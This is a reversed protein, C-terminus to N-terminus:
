HVFLVHHCLHLSQQRCSHGELGNSVGVEGGVGDEGDTGDAVGAGDEGDTEGAGGVVGVRNEGDTGGTVGAGGVRDEGDMGDVENAGGAWKPM